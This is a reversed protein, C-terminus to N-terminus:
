ARNLVTFFFFLGIIFWVSKWFTNVTRSQVLAYAGIPYFFFLLLFLYFHNDYWKSGSTNTHKASRDEYITVHRNEIIKKRNAVATLLGVIGSVVGILALIVQIEM